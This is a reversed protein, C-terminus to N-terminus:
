DLYALGPLEITNRAGMGEGVGDGDEDWARDSSYPRRSFYFPPGLYTLLYRDHRNSRRGEIAKRKYLYTPLYTTQERGPPSPPFPFPFFLIFPHTRSPTPIKEREKREEDDGNKMEDRLSKSNGDDFAEERVEDLKLGAWCVLCVYMCVYM